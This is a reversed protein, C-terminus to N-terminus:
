YGLTSLDYVPGSRGIEPDHHLEWVGARQGNEPEPAYPAYDKQMLRQNIENFRRALEPTHAVAKRFPSAASSRVSFVSVVPTTAM